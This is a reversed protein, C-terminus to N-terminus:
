KPKDYPAGTGSSGVFLERGDPLTVDRANARASGNKARYGRVVLEIGSRVSDKRWGARFLANPPGLELQWQVVKGADDKVDLFIWSHPNVWEMKALTGRLTLFQKSDFEATFAHHAAVAHPLTLLAIGAVFFRVGM